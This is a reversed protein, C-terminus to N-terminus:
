RVKQQTLLEEIVQLREEVTRVPTPPSAITPAPDANQAKGGCNCQCSMIDGGGQQKSITAPHERAYNLLRGLSIASRELSQLWRLLRAEGIATLHYRRRGPGREGEEDHVHLAGQNALTSLTEYLRGASVTGPVLGQETLWTGLEYGYRPGPRCSLLVAAELVGEVPAARPPTSLNPNICGCRRCMNM